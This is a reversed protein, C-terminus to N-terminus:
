VRKKWRCLGFFLGGMGLLGMVGPEPVATANLAFQAIGTYPSTANWSSGDNSSKLIGNEDSWGSSSSPPYASENWNYAGNAITTGATLVVIYPTNASLALNAPAAYTYTGATTPSTSGSLSGLSSGPLPGAVGINSYLMVTLGSPNGSADAMGLQISNLIYGGANNGTFFSRRAM